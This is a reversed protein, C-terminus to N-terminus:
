AAAEGGGPRSGAPPRRRGGAPLQWVAGTQGSGAAPRPWCGRGQQLVQMRPRHPDSCQPTYSPQQHRRDPRRRERRQRASRRALELRPAWRQRGSQQRRCRAPWSQPQDSRGLRHRPSQRRQPPRQGQPQLSPPTAMCCPWPAASTPSTFAAALGAAMADLCM